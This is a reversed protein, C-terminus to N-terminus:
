CARRSKVSSIDLGGIACAYRVRRNRNAFTLRGIWSLLLGFASSSGGFPLFMIPKLFNACVKPLLALALLMRITTTGIIRDSEVV